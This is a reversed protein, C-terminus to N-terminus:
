HTGEKVNRAQEILFAIRKLILEKVDPKEFIFETKWKSKTPGKGSLQVEISKTDPFVEIEHPPVNLVEFRLYVKETFHELQVKITFRGLSDTIDTNNKYGKEVVIVKPLPSLDKVIGTIEIHTIITDKAATAQAQGCLPVLVFLLIM